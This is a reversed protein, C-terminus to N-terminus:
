GGGLLAALEVKETCGGAYVCAGAVSEKLERVGMTADVAEAVTPSNNIASNVERQLSQWEKGVLNQELANSINLQRAADVGPNVVHRSLPPQPM